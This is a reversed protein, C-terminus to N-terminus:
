DAPEARRPRVPGRQNRRIRRRRAGRGRVHIRLGPNLSLRRLLMREFDPLDRYSTSFVRFLQVTIADPKGMHGARSHALHEALDAISWARRTRLIRGAVALALPYGGCAAAVDRLAPDRTPGIHALRVILQAAEEDLMPELPHRLAEPLDALRNRATVLVISGAGGPILPAIQEADAADDLLLLLRKGASHRRWLAIALDLSGAHQIQKSEVGLMGLLLGLATEPSTPRQTEDHGRLHLQMAGDPCRGRLQHALHLALTTKGIGPAGDVVLVASGGSTLQDDIEATIAAVDRHRGVFTQPDRDLTDPPEVAPPKPVPTRIKAPEDHLLQAYLQQLATGPNLGSRERLREQYAGYAHLAEPARGASNLTRMLLALVSEDFERKGALGHLEALLGRASRPDATLQLEIRFLAAAHIQEALEGRKDGAWSGPPGALPEGHVLGEAFSVRRLAEALDGRGAAARALAVSQGFQHVDLHDVPGHLHYGLSIYEIGLGPEECQDLVKRLRSLYTHLSTTDSPPADEGWLRHILTDTPVMDGADLLLAALLQKLKPSPLRIQRGHAWLEVPGLLRFEM